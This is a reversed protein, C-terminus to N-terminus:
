RLSSRVVPIVSGSEIKLVEYSRSEWGDNETIVYTGDELVMLGMPTTFRVGKFDCDTLGLRVNLVRVEQDRDQM